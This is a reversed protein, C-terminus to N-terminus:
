DKIKTRCWKVFDHELINMVNDPKVPKLVDDNQLFNFYTRKESKTKLTESFQLCKDRDFDFTPYKM